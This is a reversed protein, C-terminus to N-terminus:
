PHSRCVPRCRSALALWPRALARHLVPSYLRHIGGNIARLLANGEPDEHRSLIRSALFPIITLKTQDDSKRANM